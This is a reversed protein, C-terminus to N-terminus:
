ATQKEREPLSPWPTVPAPLIPWEPRSAQVPPSLSPTVQGPRWLARQTVPPAPM